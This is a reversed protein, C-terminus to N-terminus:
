QSLIWRRAGFLWMELSGAPTLLLPDSKECIRPQPKQHMVGGWGWGGFDCQKFESVWLLIWGFTFLCESISIKFIKRLTNQVDIARLVWLLVKM